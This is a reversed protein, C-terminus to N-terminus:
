GMKALSAGEFLTFNYDADVSWIIGPYNKMIEDLKAVAEDNRELYINKQLASSIIGGVTQLLSIEGITWERAGRCFDIGMFGWYRGEVVIPIKVLATVGRERAKPFDGKELASIDNVVVYPRTTMQLHSGINESYLLNRADPLLPEVHHAHWKYLCDFTMDQENHRFLGCRDAGLYTGALRLARYLLTEFELTGTFTQALEAVM